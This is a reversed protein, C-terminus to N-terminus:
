KLLLLNVRKQIKKPDYGHAKLKAKREDGNGWKGSIVEKAIKTIDDDPIDVKNQIRSLGKVVIATHGKSCTVLIDGNYLKTQSTYNIHTFLKTNLLAIRETSTNFNGPDKGTAEKVCERVLSSCDCETKVSSNIGNTIIGLRQNQDYGLNPNNCATEMKTALKEGHSPKIARIVDWGKPHVYFSQMSVEGNYDPTSTQKQDGAAGGSIKGREDIRASGIMVPM